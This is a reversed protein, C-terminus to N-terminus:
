ERGFIGKSPSGYFGFLLILSALNAAFRSKEHSGVIEFVVAAGLVAAATYIPVDAPFASPPEEIILKAKREM